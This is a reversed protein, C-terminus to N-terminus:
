ISFRTWKENSGHSKVVTEIFAMGRLGEHATPFDVVSPIESAGHIHADLTLAFNRYLNAFAELYGEPHGAPTRSNHKAAEANYPMGARLVQAPGELPRYHLTNPEMQHWELGGDEGYIKIYLSNEEGAAVQTATLVGSAGNDFKLLVAGDDDLARGDVVINLEACLQTVKLGTMYEALNFAHVGIDGMAGCKGSKSPDTRWSAQKNGEKESLRSLWGQHYNVFVKRIKGLKGSAIIARAEKVMPYGTYTHALALIKGTERVKAALQKSEELTITIPKEVLVHFGGDMAMMAPEFHMHNPTVISVFDMRKDEPLSQEKRIMEEFSTYIRDEDLFLNRGSEIANDRSSSLAGCVLEILGDANAAYRHIAGIFANKGGGVMGMRLKRHMTNM